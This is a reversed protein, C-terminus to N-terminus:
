RDMCLFWMVIAYNPQCWLHSTGSSIVQVHTPLLAPQCMDIVCDTQGSTVASDSATGIVVEIKESVVSVIESVSWFFCVVTFSFEPMLFWVCVNTTM